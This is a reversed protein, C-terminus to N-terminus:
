SKSQKERNLRQKMAELIWSTLSPRIPDIKILEDVQEKLPLPIRLSLRYPEQSQKDATTSGGKHIVNQIKIEEGKNFPRTRIAM